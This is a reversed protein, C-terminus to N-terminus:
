AAIIPPSYAIAIVKSSHGAEINILNASCFAFAIAGM